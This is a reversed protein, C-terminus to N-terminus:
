CFLVTNQRSGFSLLMWIVAGMEITQIFTIYFEPKELTSTPLFGTRPNCLRCFRRRMDRSPQVAPRGSLAYGHNGCWRIPRKSPTLKWYIDSQLANPTDNPLNDYDGMLELPLWFIHHIIRGIIKLAVVEALIWHRTCDLDHNKYLYITV